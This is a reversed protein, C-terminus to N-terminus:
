SGSLAPSDGRTERVVGSSRISDYQLRFVDLQLLAPDFVLLRTGSM